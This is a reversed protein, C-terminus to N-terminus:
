STLDTKSQQVWNALRGLDDNVPCNNIGISKPQRLFDLQRLDTLDEIDGIGFEELDELCSLADIATRDGLHDLRLHRLAPLNVLAAVETVARSWIQL